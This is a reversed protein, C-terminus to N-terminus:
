STGDRPPAFASPRIEKSADISRLSRSSSAPLFIQALITTKGKIALQCHRPGFVPQLSPFLERLAAVRVSL